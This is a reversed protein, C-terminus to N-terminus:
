RSLFEPVYLNGCHALLALFLCCYMGDCLTAGVSTVGTRTDPECKLQSDSLISCGIIHPMIGIQCLTLTQLIHLQQPVKSIRSTENITDTLVAPKDHVFGADAQADQPM